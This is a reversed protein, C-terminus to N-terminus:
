RETIRYVSYWTGSVLALSFVALVVHMASLYGAYGIAGFIGFTTRAAEWARERDIKRLAAILNKM